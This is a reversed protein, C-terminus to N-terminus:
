GVQIDMVKKLSRFKEDNESALQAKAESMRSKFMRVMDASSSSVTYLDYVSHIIHGRGAVRVRGPHESRGIGMTLIDQRGDVVYSNHRQLLLTVWNGLILENGDVVETKLHSTREATM